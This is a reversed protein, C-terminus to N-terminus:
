LLEKARTKRRVGPIDLFRSKCVYNLTAKEKALELFRSALVYSVHLQGFCILSRIMKAARRMDGVMKGLPYQMTHM